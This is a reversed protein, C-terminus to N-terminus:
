DVRFSVIEVVIGFVKEIRELEVQRWSSPNKDVPVPNATVWVEGLITL